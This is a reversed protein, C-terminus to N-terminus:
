EQEREMRYRRQKTLIIRRNETHLKQSDKMMKYVRQIQIEKCHNSLKLLKKENEMRRDNSPKLKPPIPSKNRLATQKM